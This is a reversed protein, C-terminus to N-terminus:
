INFTKKIDHKLVLRKSKNNLKNINQNNYDNLLKDSINLALIYKDDNSEYICKNLYNYYNLLEDNSNEKVFLKEFLMPLIECDKGIRCKKGLKDYMVYTHIYEHINILITVDNDIFPLFSYIMVLYGNEFKYYTNIFDRGEEVRYDFRMSNDYWYKYIEEDYLNHSKLFEVFKTYYM